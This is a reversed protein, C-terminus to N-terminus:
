SGMGRLSRRPLNKEAQEQLIECTVAKKNGAHASFSVVILLSAIISKM